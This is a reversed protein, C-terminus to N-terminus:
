RKIKALSKGAKKGIIDLGLNNYHPGFEKPNLFKAKKSLKLCINTLLCFDNDVKSAREQARMIIKDNFKNADPQWPAYEAFYGVKIIGFKYIGVDQKLANKLEILASLYYEESKRLIADSEGPLWVFFIKDVSFKEKAREIGKSCKEILASYRKTGKQWESINTSGKACHIAIVKNRKKSYARCFAPVLTGSNCTPVLFNDGINEGVPDKVMVFEDTLFKYELCNEAVSVGDEGSAGQMNSQGSFIIIDVKEKM